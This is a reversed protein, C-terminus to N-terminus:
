ASTSRQKTYAQGEAMFGRIRRRWRDRSRVWYTVLVVLLVCGVAGRVAASTTSTGLREAGRVILVTAAALASVMIPLGIRLASSMGAM